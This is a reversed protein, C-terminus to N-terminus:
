GQQRARRSTSPGRRWIHGQPIRQVCSYFTEEQYPMRRAIRAALAIPSVRAPVRQDRALAGLSNSLLVTDGREYRFLPQIGLPDRVARLTREAANWAVLTFTGNLRQPTAEGWRSYAVLVLEVDTRAPRAPLDLERELREREYVVGDFLVTHREDAAILRRPADELGNECSAAVVWESPTNM